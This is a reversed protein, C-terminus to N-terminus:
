AIKFRGKNKRLLEEKRMEELVSKIRIEDQIDLNQIIQREDLPSKGVLMRLIAGRIERRSGKFPSQRSYHASKRSPNKYRKKLMAGYDMLASYWKRPSKRDLTQEVLPLIEADRVADKHSSFFHHIFAARINTEIFIAPKNFGFAAISSATAKGIGPLAMLLSESSPLNGQYKDVIIKATRKLSLARRNYGLGRWIKYVQELTARDLEKFNPFAKTFARYKDIVRDVQTQQLMIESVFIHYPDTAKRWPLDRGSKQYHGYIRKRFARIDEPSIGSLLM